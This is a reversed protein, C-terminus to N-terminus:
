KLMCQLSLEPKIADLIRISATLLIAHVPECQANPQGGHRRQRAGREREVVALVIV